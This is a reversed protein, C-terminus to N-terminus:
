KGGFPADCDLINKLSYDLAKLAYRNKKPTEDWVISTIEKILMALDFQKSISCFSYTEVNIFIKFRSHAIQGSPLLTATIWSSITALVIHDKSKLNTILTHYLLTKSTGGPGNVFFVQNQKYHIVDM